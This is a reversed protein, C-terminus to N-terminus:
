FPYIGKSLDIKLVAGSNRRKHWDKETNLMLANFLYEPNGNKPNRLVQVREYRCKDNVPFYTSGQHYSRSYESWHLGDKSSLYLGSYWDFNGMDRIICHFMGRWYFIYPDETQGGVEKNDIIPNGKYKVYPGTLNKAMAVGTKRRNDNLRDLARYYLWYTGDPHKLMTPNVTCYSDWDRPNKSVDIIPSDFRKWPGYPSDAIAMGVRQSALVKETPLKVGDKYSTDSIYLLVYKGDIRYISPNHITGNDWKGPRPPIADGLIIYPGEPKDAVAHYIHCNYLWNENLAYNSFYVHVKGKDDYIPACGWTISDQRTLILSGKKVLCLTLWSDSLTDMRQTISLGEKKNNPKKANVNNFTFFFIIGTLILFLHKFNM